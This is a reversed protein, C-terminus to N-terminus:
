RLRLAGSSAVAHWFLAGFRFFRAALSLFPDSSPLLLFYVNIAYHRVMLCYLVRRTEYAPKQTDM